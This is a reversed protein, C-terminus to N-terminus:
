SRPTQKHKLVSSSTKNKPPLLHPPHPPSRASVERHAQSTPSYDNANLNNIGNRTAVPVIELLQVAAPDARPVHHEGRDATVTVDRRVAAVGHELVRFLLADAKQFRRLPEKQIAVSDVEAAPDAPGTRPACTRRSSTFPAVHPRFLDM